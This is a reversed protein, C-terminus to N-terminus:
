GLSRPPALPHRSLPLIPAPTAFQGWVRGQEGWDLFCVVKRLSRETVRDRGSEVEMGLIEEQISPALFTLNMLQTIRGKTFGTLRALETQDSVLGADILEQFVHALALTRAVRLPRTRTKAKPRGEVLEVNKGRRRTIHGLILVSQASIEHKM